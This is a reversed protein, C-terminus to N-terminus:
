WSLAIIAEAQHHQFDDAYDGNYGLRVSTRDTLRGELGIALDVRFRDSKPGDLTAALPLGFVASNVRTRLSTDRDALEFNAGLDLYPTLRVGRDDRIPRSFNVGLRAELSDFDDAEVWARDGNSWHENVADVRSHLWTLSASPQVQWAGAELQYAASLGAGYWAADQDATARAGFGPLDRQTSADGLGGGFHAALIFNGSKLGGYISGSLAETTTEGNYRDWDQEVRTFGLAAGLRFDGESRDLSATVGRTVLDYGSWGDQGDAQGLGSKDGSSIVSIKM